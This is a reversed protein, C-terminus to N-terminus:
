LHIYLERAWIYIYVRYLYILGYIYICFGIFGSARIFGYDKYVKYM